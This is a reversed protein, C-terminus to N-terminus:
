RPEDDALTVVEAADEGRRPTVIRDAERVGDTVTAYKDNSEGSKVARLYFAEPDRQVYVHPRGDVQVIADHPVALAVNKGAAIAVKAVPATAFRGDWGAEKSYRISGDPAPGPGQHAIATPLDPEVVVNDIVFRETGEPRTLTATATGKWAVTPTFAFAFHGSREIESPSSKEITAGGVGCTHAEFACPLGRVQRHYAFPAHHAAGGARRCAAQPLGQSLQVM